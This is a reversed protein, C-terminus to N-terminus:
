VSWGPAPPQNAFQKGHMDGIELPEALGVGGLLTRDLQVWSTFDNIEDGNRLVHAAHTPVVAAVATPSRRDEVELAPPEPAADAVSEGVRRLVARLTRAASLVPLISKACLSEKTM